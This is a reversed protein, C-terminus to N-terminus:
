EKIKFKILEISQKDNYVRIKMNKRPVRPEFELYVKEGRAGLKEFADMLEFEDFNVIFYYSEQGVPASFKLTRPLPRPVSMM